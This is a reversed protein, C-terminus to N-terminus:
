ESTKRVFLQYLPAKIVEVKRFYLNTFADIAPKPCRLLDRGQPLDEAWLYDDFVMVGGVQLLQFGMIADSIVDPAQHSGDIYILDFTSKNGDALLRPLHHDSRGKHKILNVDTVQKAKTKQLALRTNEDFRQEVSTMDVDAYEDTFFEASGDWTDICHIELKATKDLNEILYCTSAGEYSGVELVKQPAIFPLFDDWVGKTSSEFWNNTFQYDM